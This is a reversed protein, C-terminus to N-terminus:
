VDDGNGYVTARINDTICGHEPAMDTIDVYM